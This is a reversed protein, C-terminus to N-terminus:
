STGTTSTSPGSHRIRSLDSVAFPTEDRDSIGVRWDNRVAGDPVAAPLSMLFYRAPPRPEYEDSEEDAIRQLLKAHEFMLGNRSSEALNSQGGASASRFAKKCSQELGFIVVVDSLVHRGKHPRRTTCRLRSRMKQLLDLSPPMISSPSLRRSGPSTRVLSRFYGPMPFSIQNELLQAM